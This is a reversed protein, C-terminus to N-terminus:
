RHFVDALVPWAVALAIGVVLAAVVPMTWSPMATQEPLQVAIAEADIILDDAPLPPVVQGDTSMVVRQMSLTPINQDDRTKRQAALERQKRETAAQLVGPAADTPLQHLPLWAAMGARWVLSSRRLKGRQAILVMEAVTFPGRTTGGIAAYWTRQPAVLAGGADEIMAQFIGTVHRSADAVSPAGAAELAAIDHVQTVSAPTETSAAEPVASVSGRSIAM